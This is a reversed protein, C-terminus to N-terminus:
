LAATSKAGQMMDDAQHADSGYVLPIDRKLAERATDLDPYPEGCWTKATGAGNFDITMNQLRVADLVARTYPTIDPMPFKKQFKKILTMHGLRNPKYPGLDCKISHHVTDFYIKVANEVSGAAHVFDGFSDLSYDLCFCTDAAQLFHVSLISDDLYPGIENLMAKTRAEFGEIYDIELGTLITIDSHYEKKLEHLTEIYQELDSEAMASDKEPVPDTFGEPLPAHETFTITELGEKLAREIYAHFSDTSGHPCFPTHIHGDRTIPM